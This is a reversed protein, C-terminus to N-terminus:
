VVVSAMEEFNRHIRWTVISKPKHLADTATLLHTSSHAERLERFVEFRKNMKGLVSMEVYTKQYITYLKTNSVILFIWSCHSIRKWKGLLPYKCFLRTSCQSEKGSQRFEQPQFASICPISWFAETTIKINKYRSWTLILNIRFYM